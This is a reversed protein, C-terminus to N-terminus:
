VIEWDEALLEQHNPMWPCNKGQITVVRLEEDRSLLSDTLFIYIRKNKWCARTVHKADKLAVLAEGFTLGTTKVEDPELMFLDLSSEDNGFYFQGNVSYLRLESDNEISAVLPQKADCDMKYIAVVKRNDRTVVPAGALAKELNFPSTKM